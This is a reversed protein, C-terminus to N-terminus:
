ISDYAGHGGPALMAIYHFLSLMSEWPYIDFFYIIYIYIYVMYIKYKTFIMYITYIM